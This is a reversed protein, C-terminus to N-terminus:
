WSGKKKGFTMTVYNAGGGEDDGDQNYEDNGVIIGGSGRTWDVNRLARFLHRALPHNRADDVAHNNESVSWSVSKTEDDFYVCAEVSDLEFRRQSAKAFDIAAKTPKRLKWPNTQQTLIRHLVYTDEESYNALTGIADELSFHKSKRIAAETTLRNNKLVEWTAIAKDLMAQRNNNWANIFDKRLKAYAKSPINIKGSEWDNRSM